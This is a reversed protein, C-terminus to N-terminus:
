SARWMSRWSSHSAMGALSVACTGLVSPLAGSGAGARSGARQQSCAGGHLRPARLQRVAGPRTRGGGACLIAARADAADRLGGGGLGCAAASSSRVRAVVLGLGVLGPRLANVRVSAEILVRLLPTMKPDESEQGSPAVRKSRFCRGRGGNRRRVAQSIWGLVARRHQTVAAPPSAARRRPPRTCSPRDM